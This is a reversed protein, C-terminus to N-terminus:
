DKKLEAIIKDLQESIKDLRSIIHYIDQKQIRGTPNFM